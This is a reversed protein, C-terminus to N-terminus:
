LYVNMQLSTCKLYDSKMGGSLTRFVTEAWSKEEIYVRKSNSSPSPPVPIGNTGLAVGPDRQISRSPTSIPPASPDPPSIQLLQKRIALTRKSFFSRAPTQLPKRHHFNQERFACKSWTRLSLACRRCSNINLATM